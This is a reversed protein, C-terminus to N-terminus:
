GTVEVVCFLGHGCGFADPYNMECNRLVCAIQPGMISAWFDAVPFRAANKYLWSIMELDEALLPASHSLINGMLVRNGEQLSEIFAIVYNWQKKYNNVRERAGQPLDAALPQMYDLDVELEDLVGRFDRDFLRNVQYRYRRSSDNFIGTDMHRGVFISRDNMITGTKRGCNFAATEILGRLEDPSWFSCEFTEIRDDTREEEPYLYAMNYPKKEGSSGRWYRPWEPSYKGLLDFIICGTSGMHMMVQETLTALEDFSLHSLSAYSSFYIDYSPGITLPLGKALDHQEFMVNDNRGYNVLGQEIMSGSLDLGYYIEIDAPDLVFEKNFSDVPNNVPIHTLLEFGEGGGCGFDVIRLKKKQDLLKEIAPRICLKISIDEWYKRVNDKKGVLGSREIGYYGLRVATEYFETKM